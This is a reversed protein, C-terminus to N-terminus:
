RGSLRRDPARVADGHQLLRLALNELLAPDLQALPKDSCTALVAVGVSCVHGQLTCILPLVSYQIGDVLFRVDLGHVTETAVAALEHGDQQERLYTRVRAVLESRAPAGQSAALLFGNESYLFLHGIAAASQECLLGLAAGARDTSTLQGSFAGTVLANTASVPFAGYVSSILALETNMPVSRRLSKRVEDMLREYRGALLSGKGHRYERAALAAYKGVDDWASAAIAVRARGEYSVGLYVGKVGLAEQEAILADLRGAASAFDELKVEAAALARVVAFAAAKISRAACFELVSLGLARAEGHQGLGLRAEILGASASLWAGLNREKRNASPCSLARAQEFAEQAAAYDGRLLEFYGDATHRYGRWGPWREALPALRAGIQRVGALDHAAVHAPLEAGSNAFMQRAAAQLAAIEAKRRFAEAENADGSQLAIVRRLYLANVRQRPDREVREAWASAAALGLYASMSGIGYAVAQRVIEIRQMDGSDVENLRRLVELWRERALDPQAWCGAECTATVNQWIAHAIPSSAAFPELLGPLSELLAWDQTRTGIAIAAVAYHLLGRIAEPPSYVRDNEASAAYRAGAQKLALGLRVGSDLTADLARFASLGSDQALQELWAPMVRFFHAEDASTSFSCVARRLDNLGRRAFGHREAAELVQVFVACVDGIPMRSALLIPQTDAEKELLSLAREVALVDQGSALWHRLVDAGPSDRYLEALLRHHAARRDASLGREVAAAYGRHAVRYVSGDSVLVGHALLESLADNLALPPADTLVRAYDERTFAAHSALVQLELVRRALGSAAALEAELASEASPPLDCEGLAAPLTWQGSRYSIHGSEVLHQLMEMAVRPRGASVRSLASSLVGLHPVEGFVSRTLELMEDASLPSLALTRTRSRLVEIAAPAQRRDSSTDLAAVLLFGLQDAEGALATLVVLSPTDVTEIDDVTVVLTVVKCLERLWAVLRTHTEVRALGPDALSRLAPASASTELLDDAGAATCARLTEAPIIEFLQAVLKQLLAFQSSRGARGRLVVAGSLKAALACVELVRSRGLGSEAAVLLSSGHKDRAAELAADLASVIDARGVLNPASLYAYSVGDVETEAIGALAALRQMVEFTSSPRAMPEPRLLSLVLTDLEPPLEVYLSPAAPPKQWLLPLQAFTRAPYANRGTLVYYLTAGVSFLDTRADLLSRQIVEPATFPPTGVGVECPGMQVMAGFDILKARGDHTRRINLPTVDRHIWRRAHILALSSCVDYLLKCAERWALPTASRLDGGSLLEMTYYPGQEDVGFDFVEIIRPHSLQALTHFERQFLVAVDSTHRGHRAVSLQKLALERQSIPDHVRYVVAAGGRGLEEAIEYRDAITRRASPPGNQEEQM